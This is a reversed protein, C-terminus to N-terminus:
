RGLETFMLRGVLREVPVFDDTLLPLADLATGNSALHKTVRIWTREFGRLATVSPPPEFRDTASVIFTERVPVSPLAELWVHVHHFQERLTKVISKVLLPDPYSDIVNLVYLGDPALRSKVLAAYERTLLHWPMAVDHVVDGIVVDFRKGALGQLAMRADTHLIRMDSHDLYLSKM